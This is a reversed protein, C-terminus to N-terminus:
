NTRRSCRCPLYRGLERSNSPQLGCNTVMTYALDTQIDPIQVVQKTGRAVLLLTRAQGYRDGSGSSGFSPPADYLHAAHFSEGNFLLLHGFKAECISTANALMAEFVPELDGPSSSIIKLVDSTATQQELAATLDTTRQRLENLLRTNEIAIVAQAAFNTLLAIQKEDFLAVEPRHIVIVGIPEDDDKLMPVAVATRIGGLEVADVMGPHRQRYADTAALDPIQVAGKIKLAGELPGGPAPETAGRARGESFEMPMDYAAVLRVKGQEHLHLTGFKAKCLQTANRLMSEFVPQLDGPSSSIVQLVESTATQQELLESLERTRQQESEFLRVNEIAIAAQDAFTTLLAIHKQEFPRVETRRVLIAGLARGERILPVSLITRHRFRTAFERGLPFEDGANEMDAIHVPQLDRISSGTVSSRDLPAAEGKSLRGLEGFSAAIRFVENDVIAIDVVHAECIRAAHEAVSDLVPQVDAPSNSIVRLIESIATQQELSETLERTRQQEAEFLRTNEIAIVAQDAFTEVLKIQKETFPRVAARHLVLLGIPVGERLLPVGLITRYGGLRAFERFAYEPDDLVDPIQVSKGEMLVRGVVGSRGPAFLQGKQSEIFEPTQRYTAAVYYSADKGTPRHIAGKEAECLRAALELLTNLVKALDFTSRSIVQLVDATATLQQRAENLEKTLRAVRTEERAGSSSKPEAAKPTMRSKRAGTKGPQAQAPEGGARSRRRM